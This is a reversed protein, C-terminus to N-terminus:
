RNLGCATLFDSRVSPDEDYSGRWFTTRTVQSTGEVGRMETCLHSGELYVGVGHPQLMVEM